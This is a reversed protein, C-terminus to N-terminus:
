KKGYSSADKKRKGSADDSILNICSNYLSIDTFFSNCFRLIM